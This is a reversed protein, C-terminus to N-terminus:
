ASEGAPSGPAALRSSLVQRPSPPALHLLLLRKDPRDRCPCACQGIARAYSASRSHGSPYRTWRSLLLGTQGDVHLEARKIERSISAQQRADDCRKGKTIFEITANIRADALQAQKLVSYALPQSSTDKAFDHPEVYADTNDPAVNPALGLLQRLADATNTTDLM